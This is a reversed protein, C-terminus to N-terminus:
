AARRRKALEIEAEIAKLLKEGRLTPMGVAWSQAREIEALEADAAKLQEAITARRSQKARLIFAMQALEPATPM